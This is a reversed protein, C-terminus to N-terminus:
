NPAMSFCARGDDAMAAGRKPHRRNAKTAPGPM